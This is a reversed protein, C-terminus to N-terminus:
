AETVSQVRPRLGLEGQALQHGLCLTEWLENVVSLARASLPLPWGLGQPCQNIHTIKSRWKAWKPKSEGCRHGECSVEDEWPLLMSMLWLGCLHVPCIDTPQILVWAVPRVAM